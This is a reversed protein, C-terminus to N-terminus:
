EEGFALLSTLAQPTSKRLYQKSFQNIVAGKTFHIFVLPANSKRIQIYEADVRDVAVGYALM